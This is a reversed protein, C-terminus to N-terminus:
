EANQQQAEQRWSMGKVQQDLQQRFIAKPPSERMQGVASLNWISFHQM